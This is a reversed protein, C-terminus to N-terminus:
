GFLDFQQPIDQLLQLKLFGNYIHAVKLSVSVDIDRCARTMSTPSRDNKRTARLERVCERFRTIDKALDAKIRQALKGREQSRKPESYRQLAEIDLLPSYSQKSCEVDNKIQSLKPIPGGLYYYWPHTFDYGEHPQLRAPASM